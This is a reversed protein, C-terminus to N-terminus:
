SKRHVLEFFFIAIYTLVTSGAVNILLSKWLMFDLSELIFFVSCFLVTCIFTYRFFAGWGMARSSPIMVEDDASAPKFYRLIIPQVFGLLTGAAAQMGITNIFIDATLGLLFGSLIVLWRQANLPSILLVYIYPFPTAYGMIHVHNFVLIQFIFLGAAIM